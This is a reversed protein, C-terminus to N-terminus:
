ATQTLARSDLYVAKGVWSVRAIASVPLRRRPGALWHRRTVLVDSVTWAACDVLFEEVHGAAADREVVTYGRIARMSRLHPDGADAELPHEDKWYFPLGYYEHLAAEHRRSVPRDTDVDPSRWIQERTLSVTIVRSSPDTDRACVPSILVRRSALGHRVDAVLYRVIWRRDDFYLDHVRGAVGDRAEIRYAFLSHTDEIYGMDEGDRAPM